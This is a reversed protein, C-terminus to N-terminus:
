NFGYEDTEKFLEAVLRKIESNQSLEPDSRIIKKALAQTEELIASDAAIDGIKLLPLGHQKRGFFDGPGRLELDKGAIEFGNCTSVMTDIRAKTYPSASDTVLICHSQGSGRGVRGRLQHLQSLGFQEANEILMVAANPVDVGVEIVTTSVLVKIEGSKFGAMIEDKGSQKMRGHLLGTKIGSLWSECLMNYYKVAGAKESAGEEIL